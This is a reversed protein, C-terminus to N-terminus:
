IIVKKLKQDNEITALILRNPYPYLKEFMNSDKLTEDSTVGVDLIKTKPTPKIIDMFISFQDTRVRVSLSSLLHKVPTITKKVENLWPNKSKM